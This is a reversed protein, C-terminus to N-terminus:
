QLPGKQDPSMSPFDAGNRQVLLKGLFVEGSEGLVGSFRSVGRPALQEEILRLECAGLAM